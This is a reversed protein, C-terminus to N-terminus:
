RASEGYERGAVQSFARAQAVFQECPQNFITVAANEPKACAAQLADLSEPEFWTAFLVIRDDRIAAKHRLHVAVGLRDYVGSREVNTWAAGGEVDHTAIPAVSVGAAITGRLFGSVADHGEYRKGRSNLVVADPAFLAATAAFDGRSLAAQFEDAIESPSRADAVGMGVAVHLGIALVLARAIM